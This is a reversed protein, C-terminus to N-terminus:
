PRYSMQFMNNLQPSSVLYLDSMDPISGQNVAQLENPVHQKMTTFQGSIPDSMDPISGQSADGTQSTIQYQSSTFRESFLIIRKPKSSADMERNEEMSSAVERKGLNSERSRSSGEGARLEKRVQRKFQLDPISRTDDTEEQSLVPHESSPFSGQDERSTGSRFFILRRPLPGRDADSTRDTDREKDPTCAEGESRTTCEYGQQNLITNTTKLHDADDAIV